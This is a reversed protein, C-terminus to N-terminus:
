NKVITRNSKWSSDNSVSSYSCLFWPCYFTSQSSEKNWLTSSIFAARKYCFISSHLKCISIIFSYASTSLFLCLIPFPDLTMVLLSCLLVRRRNRNCFSTLMRTDQPIVAWSKETCHAAVITPRTCPWGLYYDPVLESFSVSSNISFRVRYWHYRFSRVSQAIVIRCLSLIFWRCKSYSIKM